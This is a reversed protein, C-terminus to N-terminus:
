IPTESVQARAAELLSRPVIDQMRKRVGWMKLWEVLGKQSPNKLILTKCVIQRSQSQDATRRTEAEQTALIVPVLWLHGALM